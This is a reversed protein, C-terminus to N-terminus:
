LYSECLLQLAKSLPFHNWSKPFKELMFLSYQSFFFGFGLLDTNSNKQQNKVNLIKKKKQFIGLCSLTM